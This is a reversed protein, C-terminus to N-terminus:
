DSGRATWSMQEMASKMAHCRKCLAQLNSEANTGGKFLPKIHDLEYTEDLLQKCTACRWKQEAAVRKKVLPSIYPRYRSSRTTVKDSQSARIQEEPEFLHQGHQLVEMAVRADYRSILCAILIVMGMTALVIVFGM